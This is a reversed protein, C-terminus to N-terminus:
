ALRALRPISSTRAPVENSIYSEAEIKTVQGAVEGDPGTLVFVNFFDRGDTEVFGAGLYIGLRRSTQKLWTITPGEKPEAVDWLTENPIYGSPFLEPLLILQAGAQAAKEIFPIAHNHNAKISAHKSEIQIAAVRVNRTKDFTKM